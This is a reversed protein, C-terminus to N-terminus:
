ASEGQVNYLSYFYGKAAFLEDFTGTEALEGNKMVLLADCKRLTEQTYRHTVMILTLGDIAILSEEIDRATISDLSATAEDVVLVESGKLIARAISVRQKEGGSLTNGGEGLVTSSGNPLADAVAGLKAKEIAAAYEEDTYANYLKINDAFSDDLLFVNQHIISLVKYLGDRNVDRVNHGNLMINGSYDDYYGMMLKALTSKGSGSAGVIAYKGGKRFRCSLGSLAPKQGADAGYAFGVNDFVIDGELKSVAAPREKTDTKNMAELIRASILKTSKMSGWNSAANSLPAMISATLGTIAVLEGMTIRGQMVFYGAVFLNIFTVCVVICVTLAGSSSVAAGARYTSMAVSRATDYFRKRIKAEVGFTKIVEFGELFDKVKQNQIIRSNSLALSTKAMRSGFIVPALLPLFSTAVAVAANVPNISGIAAIALIALVGDAFVQPVLSFYKDAVTKIDINLMSIYKASNSMSFDSIKTDMCSNFFDRALTRESKASYMFFMRTMISISFWMLISILVALGTFRFFASDDGIAVADIVDRRVFNMYVNLFQAGAAAAFTFALIWPHFLIYKKM